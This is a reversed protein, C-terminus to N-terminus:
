SGRSPGRMEKVKDQRAHARMCACVCVCVRVRVRVRVCACVCVCVSARVCVWVSLYGGGARARAFLCPGLGLGLCLYLVYVGESPAGGVKCDDRAPARAPDRQAPFQEPLRVVSVWGGVWVCARTRLFFPM